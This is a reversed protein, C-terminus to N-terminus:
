SKAKQKRYEEIVEALIDKQELIREILSKDAIIFDEQAIFNDLFYVGKKKLRSFLRIGKKKLEEAVEASVISPNEVFLFDDAKLEFPKKRFSQGLDRVKKIIVKNDLDFFLSRLNKIEKALSEKEAEIKALEQSFDKIRKEKFRLLNDTQQSHQSIKKALFLNTRKLQSLDKKLQSLRSELLVKEKKSCNLKESLRLFDTKTIKNEELVWGIIKNEEPPHVLIKKASEFDLNEKIILRTFPGKIKELANKQLFCDIKELTPRIKKYAFLAAALADLQHDDQLQSLHEKALDRKEQRPLDQPPSIIMTGLKASFEQVLSPTKEKDTATVLPLSIEIIQSIIQSLSLEKASYTQLLQGQLDLVSYAATTGPDLGIISLPKPM